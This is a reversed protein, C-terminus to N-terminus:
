RSEQGFLIRHGDSRPFPLLNMVAFLLNLLALLGLGFHFAAAYLMLNALPGGASTLAVESHTLAIDDSGIRMGLGHRTVVPAWPLRLMAAVVAHGFEHVIVTVLLALLLTAIM